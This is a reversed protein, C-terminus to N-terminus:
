GASGIDSLKLLLAASRDLTRQVRELTPASRVAGVLADTYQGQPTLSLERIDARTRWLVQQADRQATRPRFGVSVQPLEGAELAALALDGTESSDLPARFSLQGAEDTFSVLGVRQDLHVTRLEFLNHCAQISRALAGPRWGERYYNLGHDDSVRYPRNYSLAVGYVTRGDVDTLQMSRQLELM